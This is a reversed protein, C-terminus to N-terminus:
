HPLAVGPVTPCDSLQNHGTIYAWGFKGSDSVEGSVYRSNTWFNESWPLNGPVLLMEPQYMLFRARGRNDRSDLPEVGVELLCQGLKYDGAAQSKRCHGKSLSRYLKKLAGSSLVYGPGDSNYVTGWTKFAHGFYCPMTANYVSLYYALNEMIVFTDEEARIFWDYKELYKEAVFYMFVEYVASWSTLDKSKLQMVDLDADVQHNAFYIIQTCRKGWTSEIAKGATYMSPLFPWILLKQDSKNLM